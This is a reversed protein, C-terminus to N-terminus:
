KSTEWESVERRQIEIHDLYKEYLFNDCYYEVAESFLKEAEEKSTVIKHKYSRDYYPTHPKFIAEIRYEYTM